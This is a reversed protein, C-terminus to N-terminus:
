IHAILENSRQVAVYMGGSVALVRERIEEKTADNWKKMRHGTRLTHDIYSRIDDDVPNGQVCVQVADLSELCQRIDLEDRSTVLIHIKYQFTEWRLIRQLWGLVSSRETCEDLSDILMYTHDFRALLLELAAHLSEESPKADGRGLLKELEYPMGDCQLLLQEILSRVLSEHRQLGDQADRFDFLFYAVAFSQNSACHMTIEEVASSSTYAVMM